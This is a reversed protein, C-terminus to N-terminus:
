VGQGSPPQVVPPADQDSTPPHADRYSKFSVEAARYAKEIITGFLGTVNETAVLEEESIEFMIPGLEVEGKRTFDQHGLDQRSRQKASGHATFRLLDALQEFKIELYVYIDDSTNRWGGLMQMQSLGAKEAAEWWANHHSMTPVLRDAIDQAYKAMWGNTYLTEGPLAGRVLDELKGASLHDRLLDYLFSVLRRRDRVWGSQTRMREVEALAPDDFGMALRRKLTEQAEVMKSTPPADKTVDPEDVSPGGLEHDM